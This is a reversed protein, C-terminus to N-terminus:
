GADRPPPNFDGKRKREGPTRGTVRHCAFRSAISLMRKASLPRSSRCIWSSSTSPKARRLAQPRYSAACFVPGFSATSFSPCRKNPRGTKWNPAHRPSSSRRPDDPAAEDGSSLTERADLPLFDASHSLYLLNPLAALDVGVVRLLPTSTSPSLPRHITASAELIPFLGAPLEGLAERIEPLQSVPLYGSPSSLILDSAGTVNETFLSFGSVAARNALRISFFVAVGLALIAILLGSKCPALRWHRMTVLSWQLAIQRLAFRM